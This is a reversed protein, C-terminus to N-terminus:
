KFQAVWIKTEYPIDILEKNLSLLYNEIEKLVQEFKEKAQLFLTGHSKWAEIVDEINHKHIFTDSIFQIDSFLQSNKLIEMQDQRRKGYSYTPIYKKICNEIPKQIPDNLDRHNWMCAFWGMPKVIRRAEKLAVEQDVVNFSSGYTIADFSSDLENTNEATGKKWIVNSNDQTYEIGYKRMEDNPEIATVHFGRIALEKSLFGTGAGIDSVTQSSSKIISSMEDLAISSYPARKPYAKALKSYDWHM